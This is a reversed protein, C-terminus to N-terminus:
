LGSRPESEALDLLYLVHPRTSDGIPINPHDFNRVFRLGLRRMVAQSRQNGVSTFSWISRADIRRAVDIAAQGAETAYGHGWAHRALRWGVELGEGDIIGPPV